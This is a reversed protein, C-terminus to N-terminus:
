FLFWLCHNTYLIYIIRSEVHLRTLYIVNNFEFECGAGANCCRRNPLCGFPGCAKSGSSCQVFQRPQMARRYDEEREEMAGFLWSGNVGLISGLGLLALLVTASNKQHFGM